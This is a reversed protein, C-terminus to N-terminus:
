FMEPRFVGYEPKTLVVLTSFFIQFPTKSIKEGVTHTKQPVYLSNLTFIFLHM